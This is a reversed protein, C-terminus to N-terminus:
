QLLRRIRLLISWRYFVLVLPHTRGQYLVHCTCLDASLYMKSNPPVEDHVPDKAELREEPSPPYRVYCYPVNMRVYLVFDDHFVDM